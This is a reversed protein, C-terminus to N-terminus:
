SRRIRSLIAVIRDLYEDALELIILGVFGFGFVFIAWFEISGVLSVISHYEQSSRLAPFVEPALTLIIELALVVLVVVGLRAHRLALEVLKTRESSADRSRRSSWQM